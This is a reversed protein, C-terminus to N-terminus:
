WRWSSPTPSQHRCHQREDVLRHAEQHRPKQSRTTGAKAAGVTPLPAINDDSFPEEPISQAQPNFRSSNLAPNVPSVLDQDANPGPQDPSIDAPLNSLKSLTSINRQHASTSNVGPVPPNFPSMPGLGKLQFNQFKDAEPMLFQQTLPRGSGDVVDQPYPTNAGGYIDLLSKRSTSLRSARNVLANDLQSPQSPGYDIGDPNTMLEASPDYNAIEEQTTQNIPGSIRM